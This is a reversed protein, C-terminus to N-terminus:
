IHCYLIWLSYLGCFGILCCSLIACRRRWRGMEIVQKELIKMQKELHANRAAMTRDEWQLISMLICVCGLCVLRIVMTGTDVSHNSMILGFCALALGVKLVWWLWRLIFTVLRFALAILGYCILLLLVWQAVFIVGEPTVTHLGVTSVHSINIDNGPIYFPNGTFYFWILNVQM